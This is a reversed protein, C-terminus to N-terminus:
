SLYEATNEEFEERCDISCFYFMEGDKESQVETQQPNVDAGCVPDTVM